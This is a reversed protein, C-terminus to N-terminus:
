QKIKRKYQGARFRGKKICDRINEKATGLWLHSPRVCKRNDCSHCVHLNNCINGVNMEYSLRHAFLKVSKNRNIRQMIQGYGNSLSGTWNWCSNTKNVFKWFRTKPDTAKPSNFPNSCKKSCFRRGKRIPKFLKKCKECNLMFYTYMFCFCTQRNM